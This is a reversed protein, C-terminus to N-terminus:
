KGLVGGYTGRGKQKGVNRYLMGLVGSKKFGM